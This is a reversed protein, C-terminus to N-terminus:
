LKSMAVMGKVCAKKLGSVEAHAEAYKRALPRLRGLYADVDRARTVDAEKAM